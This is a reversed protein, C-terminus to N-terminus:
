ATSPSEAKVQMRRMQFAWGALTIAAGLLIWAAMAKPVPASPFFSEALPVGCGLLLLAGLASSAGALAWRAFLAGLGLGIAAGAGTTAALFSQTPQPLLAWRSKALEAIRSGTGALGALTEATSGGTKTEGLIAAMSVSLGSRAARVSEAPNAGDRPAIQTETADIPAATPAIGREVLLGGVLAGIISGAVAFGVAVAPRVFLAALAACAVSAATACIAPSWEPILNAHILGGLCWGLTGGCFAAVLGTLRVGAIVLCLGLAALLALILTTM